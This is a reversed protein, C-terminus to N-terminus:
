GCTHRRRSPERPRPVSLGEGTAEGTPCRGGTAGLGEGEDSVAEGTPRRGGAGLDLGLGLGGSDEGDAFRSPCGEVIPTRGGAGEGEDECDGTPTCCDDGGEGTPDTPTPGGEGTPATPTPPRVRLPCDGGGEATCTGQPGAPEPSGCRRGGTMGRIVVAAVVAVVVAVAVVAVVALGCGRGAEDLTPEPPPACRRSSEGKERVM